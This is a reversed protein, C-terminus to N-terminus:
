DTLPLKKVAEAFEEPLDVYPTHGAGDLVIFQKDPATISQYYEEVAVFPTVFDSGGSIFYVPIQYDQMEYANFFFLDSTLPYDKSLLVKNSDILFWKLDKWNMDPSFGAEFFIRGFTKEKEGLLYKPELNRYNTFDDGMEHKECFRNYSNTIQQVYETDGAMTARRIAEKVAIDEGTYTNVVQGVGIYSSIKEPHQQIYLTGILTGWSHGMIIVKDQGFRGRLYDVTTDIDEIILERSIEADPNDYYTKGCGRQAYTVITFDSNLYPEWLYDFYGVPSGPGGHLFLIVPNEKNEGRISLEEKIGNVEIIVTEQIGNDGTIRTRVKNIIRVTFYSVILVAIILILTVAIIKLIKKIRKKM